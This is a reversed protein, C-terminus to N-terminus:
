RVHEGHSLVHLREVDTARRGGRFRQRRDLRAPDRRDTPPLTPSFYQKLAYPLFAAPEFFAGAQQAQKAMLVDASTGYLVARTRPNAMRALHVLDPGRVGGLRMSSFFLMPSSTILGRRAEEATTAVEAMIGSNQALTKLRWCFTRDPDAFLATRVPM